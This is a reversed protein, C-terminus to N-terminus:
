SVAQGCLHQINLKVSCDAPRRVALAISHHSLSDFRNLHWNETAGFHASDFSVSLPSLNCHFAQFDLTLGLGTAKSVAEKLTWLRLFETQQSPRSHLWQAEISSLYRDALMQHSLKRNLNEVDVGIDADVQLKEANMACVAMGHTHSINFKVAADPHAETDIEPRGHKNKCFQWDLPSLGHFETLMSRLLAHAASYSWRDEDFKFREARAREHENLFVPDIHNSQAKFPAPTLTRLVINLPETQTM